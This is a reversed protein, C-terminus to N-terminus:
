SGTTVKVLEVRTDDQLEEELTIAGTEPCNYKYAKNDPELPTWELTKTCNKFTNAGIRVTADTAVVKAWDEAEGKYYEQRYSEGVVQKANMWIGPQANDVGALWSGHHDKLKGNEYNDVEEGFYWVTGDKHQAIYDRTDEIVVGNLTVIDHYLLTKVGMLVKTDGPIAIEIRELGEDSKAEYIMKKGVPMNFLPNTIDTSFDEPNINPAYPQEAFASSSILLLALAAAANLCAHTM